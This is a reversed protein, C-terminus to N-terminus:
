HTPYAVGCDLKGQPTNIQTCDCVNNDLKKQCYADDAASIPFNSAQNKAQTNCNARTGDDPLCSCIQSALNLCADGCGQVVLACLALLLSAVLRTSLSRLVAAPDLVSHRAM